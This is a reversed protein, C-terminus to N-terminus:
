KNFIDNYCRTQKFCTFIIEFRHEKNQFDYLDGNYDCFRFKLSNLNPIPPNFSKKISNNYMVLGNSSTEMKNIVAFANHAHNNKSHYVKAQQMYMIIYNDTELDVMYPADFPVNAELSYNAIDFGLMKGVSKTPYQDVNVEYEYMRPTDSKFMLETTVSSVFTLKQSVGDYTVTMSPVLSSLATALTEGNYIGSPITYETVLNDLGRIHLLNNSKHINYKNFNFDTLVLEASVVDTLSEDLKISYNAPNKYINKNRDRSDIIYRFRRVPIDKTELKPPTIIAKDEM